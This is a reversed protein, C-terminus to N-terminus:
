FRAINLYGPRNIPPVYPATRGSGSGEKNWTFEGERFENDELGSFGGDDAYMSRQDTDSYIADEPNAAHVRYSTMEIVFRPKEPDDRDLYADDIRGAFKHQVTDVEMTDPALDLRYIDVRRKMLDEDFLSQLVSDSDGEGDPGSIIHAGDITITLRDGKAGIGSRFNSLSGFPVARFTRQETGAGVPIDAAYSVNDQVADIRGGDLHFSAANRSIYATM